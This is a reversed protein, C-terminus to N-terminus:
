RSLSCVESPRREARYGIRELRKVSIHCRSDATFETGTWDAHGSEFVFGALQGPPPQPGTGHIVIDSGDMERRATGRDAPRRDAIGATPTPRSSNSPAQASKEACGAVKPTWGDSVGGAAFGTSGVGGCTPRDDAGGDGSGDDDADGDSDDALADGPDDDGCDDGGAAPEGSRGVWDDEALGDGYALARSSAHVGVSGATM